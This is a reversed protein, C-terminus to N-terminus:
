PGRRRDPAAAAAPALWPALAWLVLSAQVAYAAAHLWLDSVGGTAEPPVPIVATGVLTAAYVLNILLRFRFGPIPRM